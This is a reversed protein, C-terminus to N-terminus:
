LAIRHAQAKEKCLQHIIKKQLPQPDRTRTAAESRVSKAFGEIRSDPIVKMFALKLYETDVDIQQCGGRSMMKARVRELFSKFIYQVIRFLIYTASCKFADPVFTVPVEVDLSPLYLNSTSRPVQLLGPSSIKLTSPQLRPLASATRAHRVKIEEKPKDLNALTPLSPTRPMKSRTIVPSLTASYQLEASSTPTIRKTFKPAPLISFLTSVEVFIKFFEDVILATGLRVERPERAKMANSTELLKKIMREFGKCHASIYLLIL